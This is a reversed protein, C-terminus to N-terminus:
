VTYDNEEKIEIAKEFVNKIVRLILGMFGAALPVVWVYIDYFMFLAFFLAVAFCCYSLGRLLNVSLKDFVKDEKIKLLLKFLLIVAVLGIITSCYFLTIVQNKLDKTYGSLRIYNDSIWPIFFLAGILLAALGLTIVQSLIISNVTRNKQRQKQSKEM